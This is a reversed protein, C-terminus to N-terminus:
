RESFRLILAEQSAAALSQPTSEGPVSKQSFLADLDLDADRLAAKEIGFLDNDDLLIKTVCNCGLGCEPM